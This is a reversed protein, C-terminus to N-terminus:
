SARLSDPKWIAGCKRYRNASVRDRRFRLVARDFRQQAQVAENPKAASDAVGFKVEKGLV